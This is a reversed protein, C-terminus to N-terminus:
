FFDPDHWDSANAPRLRDVFRRLQRNPKGSLMKSLLRVLTPEPPIFEHAGIKALLDYQRYAALIVRGQSSAMRNPRIYLVDGHMLQGGYAHTFQAQNRWYSRRLGRLWFGRGRMFADVDSFLAQDLYQPVFEVELEVAITEDLLAGAGKLVELETGQTDIKIVHPQKSVVTDMRSLTLPLEKVVKMNSGYAFDRCLADNPILLSSCGPQTCIRLMAAQGDVAGLAAPIWEVSYPWSSNNLRVCEDVDPEFAIVDLSSYFPKWRADIGGRAGVDVLRLRDMCVETRLSVTAAGRDATTHAELRRNAM